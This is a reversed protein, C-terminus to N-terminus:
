GGPQTDGPVSPMRRAFWDTRSDAVPDVRVSARLVSAEVPGALVLPMGREALQEAFVAGLGSSAGTVVAWGGASEKSM